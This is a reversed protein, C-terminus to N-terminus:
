GARRDILLALTNLAAWGLAAGLVLNRGDKDRAKTSLLAADSVDSAIRLLMAATVTKESRGLLGLASIALDRAGYTQAVTDYDAQEKPNSTLHTGLHRPRALAYVGYSATAASMVRSLRYTM